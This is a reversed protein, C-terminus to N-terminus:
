YGGIRQVKVNPVGPVSEPDEIKVGATTLPKRIRQEIRESDSIVWMEERV